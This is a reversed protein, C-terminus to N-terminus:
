FESTTIITSDHNHPAEVACLSRWQKVYLQRVEQNLVCHVLFIFTGQQSNLLIFIIELAKSNDAFFGLIWSCGLIIFQIMAKLAVSRFLRQDSESRKIKLIEGKMNKLTSFIIVMISIFLVTNAALIFSVPGLFSWLFDTRLWCKESGHGNPVLGVSISVVALPV